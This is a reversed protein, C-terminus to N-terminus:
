SQSGIRGRRLAARALPLYTAAAYWALALGVVGFVWAAAEADQRWSLDAHGFLFLPVAFMLALTGAKGVWVVDIRAAGRVALVLVALSVLAERVIMAVGIGLPMSGDVLIAVVATAILIRDAAPDLVKGLASVQGLRRALQGDVWDTAGLASLLVAAALRDHAGFLLWVFLGVCGLRGLSVANPLTWVRDLAVEESRASM